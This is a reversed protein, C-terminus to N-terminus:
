ILAVVRLSDVCHGAAVAGEADGDWGAREGGIVGSVADTSGAIQGGTVPM